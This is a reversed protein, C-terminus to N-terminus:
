AAAPRNPRRCALAAWPRDTGSRGVPRHSTQRRPQAHLRGLSSLMGSWDLRGHHELPLPLLSAFRSVALSRALAVLGCRRM